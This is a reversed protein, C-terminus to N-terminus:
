LEIEFMEGERFAGSACDFVRRRATVRGNSVTYEVYSATGAQTASGACVAPFPALKSRSVFYPRHRHGHLWLIVGGDAAIRV